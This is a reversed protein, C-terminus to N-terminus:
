SQLERDTRISRWFHVFSDDLWAELRADGRLSWLLLTGMIAQQCSLALQALKLGTAVEGREQGLQFIRALMKRGDAMRDAMLGRVKESAMVSAILARTLDASRGPEEGIRHFLRRVLTQIQQKGAEAEALTDKVKGLQIETMVGLVHEKSEFYNFFTGKGVDAADTIDEVTVNPFGRKAFLQVATRFLRVRTEAARRERRGMHKLHPLDEAALADLIVAFDNTQSGSM